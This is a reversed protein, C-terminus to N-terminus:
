PWDQRLSWQRLGGGGRSARVGQAPRARWGRARELWEDLPCVPTALDEPFGGGELPQLEKLSYACTPDDQGLSVRRLM